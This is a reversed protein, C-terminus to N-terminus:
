GIVEVGEKPGNYRVLLIRQDSISSNILGVKELYSTIYDIRYLYRNQGVTLIVWDLTDNYTWQCDISSCITEPVDSALFNILQLKRKVNALSPIMEPNVPIPNPTTFRNIADSLNQETLAVEGDVDWLIQNREGCGYDSNEISKCRDENILVESLNAETVNEVSGALHLEYCPHSQYFERLEAGKWCAIIYALLTRSFALNSREKIERVEGHFKIEYRCFEPLTAARSFSTLLKIYLNCYLWNAAHKFTGSILSLFVLVSAVAIIMAWVINLALGRM